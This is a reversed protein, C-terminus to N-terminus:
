VSLIVAGCRYLMYKEREPIPIAVSTPAMSLNGEHLKLRGLKFNSSLIEIVGKRRVSLGGDVFTSDWSATEEAM